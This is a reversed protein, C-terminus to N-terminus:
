ADEHAKDDCMRVHGGRRLRDPITGHHLSRYESIVINMLRDHCMRALSDISVKYSKYKHIKTLDLHKSHKDSSNTKSLAVIANEYFM